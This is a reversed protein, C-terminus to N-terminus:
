TQAQMQRPPNQPWKRTISNYVILPKMKKLCSCFCFCFGHKLTSVKHLLLWRATWCYLLCPNHSSPSLSLQFCM